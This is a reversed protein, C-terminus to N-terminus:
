PSPSAVGSPPSVAYSKPNLRASGHELRLNGVTIYVDVCGQGSSGFRVHTAQQCTDQLASRAPRDHGAFRTYMDRRPLNMASGAEALWGSCPNIALSRPVM